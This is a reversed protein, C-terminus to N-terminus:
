PKVTISNFFRRRQEDSAVSDQQDIAFGLVYNKHSVLLMRTYLVERKGTKSALASFAYEVGEGAPTHFTTKSLLRSNGFLHMTKSINQNYFSDRVAETVVQAILPNTNVAITYRYKAGNDAVAFARYPDLSKYKLRKNIGTSELNVPYPRSPLQVSVHQDIPYSVWDPASCATLFFVVVYYRYKM